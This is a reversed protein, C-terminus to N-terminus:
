RLYLHLLMLKDFNWLMAAFCPKSSTCCLVNTMNFASHILYFAVLIVDGFYLVRYIVSLVLKAVLIAKFYYQGSILM